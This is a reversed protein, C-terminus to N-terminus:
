GFTMGSSVTTSGGSHKVSVALNRAEIGDGLVGHAYIDTPSMYWASVGDHSRALEGDPLPKMNGDGIPPPETETPETEDVCWGNPEDPCPAALLAGDQTFVYAGAGDFSGRSTAEVSTVAAPVPVIEVTM